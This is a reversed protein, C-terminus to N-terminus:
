SARYVVGVTCVAASSTANFTFTLYTNPAWYGQVGVPVTSSANNSFATTTAVTLNLALNTNGQAGQGSVTTTAAQVQWLALGTGTIDTFVSSVGTCGAFGAQVWRASTDTNLISSSTATRDTPTINVSAIKGSGFTTGVPSGVSLTARVDSVIQAVDIAPYKYAGVIACGLVAAVVVAVARKFNIDM